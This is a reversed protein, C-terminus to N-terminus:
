GKKKRRGYQFPADWGQRLDECVKLRYYRLRSAVFLKDGSEVEEAMRGKKTLYRIRLYHSVEDFWSSPKLALITLEVDTPPHIWKELEGEPLLDSQVWDGMGRLVEEETKLAEIRIRDIPLEEFVLGM